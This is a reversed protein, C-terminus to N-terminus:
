RILDFKKVPRDIKFTIEEQAHNAVDILDGNKNYLDGIHAVFPAKGPSLVEIDRNGRFINRMEITAEQTEENYSLVIGLFEHSAQAKNHTYIIENPTIDGKFFGHSIERNEGKKLNRKYEDINELKGKEYYEDIARRYANVVTAIYHLSKMRGEIKLSAVGADILRPIFDIASLDTSAMAFDYERTSVKKDGQFLDYSWRCSQACGGRNADRNTMINSLMCRGSVSACMAGEIFVEIDTSTHKCIDEINEMSCERGLVVRDAKLNTFFEIGKSNVVSQQTSVHAEMKTHEKIAKIITPSSAIVADVGADELAKLYDLLNNTDQQHMVINCTVYVKSGYQHAFSCGERIDDITFNSAMSRLSLQKGGIYVADAGYMIAYKLRELDGAPSLLEIKRM